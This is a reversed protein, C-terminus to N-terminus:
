HGQPRAAPGEVALTGRARAVDVLTPYFQVFTNDVAGHAAHCAYCTASRPIASGAREARDFGYFTWTGNAKVEVEIGRLGGQFFGARNISGNSHSSRLELVLVAGEPWRGTKLFSRYAGPTVFVNDFPPPEAPSAAGPGYSMGLGSSLWIWERYGDPRLLRGQADFRAGESSPAGPRRTAAPDVDLVVAALAALVAAATRIVM